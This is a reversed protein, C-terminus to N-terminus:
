EYYDSFINTLNVNEDQLEYPEECNNIDFEINQINKIKEDIMPEVMDLILKLTEDYLEEDVNLESKIYENYLKLHIEEIIKDKENNTFNLKDDIYSLASLYLISFLVDEENEKEINEKEYFSRNDNKGMKYLLNFLTIIQLIIIIVLLILNM